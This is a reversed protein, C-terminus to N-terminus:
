RAGALITKQVRRAVPTPRTPTFGYGGFKRRAVGTSTLFDIDVAAASAIEPAFEAWVDRRTLQNDIVAHDDMSPYDTDDEPVNKIREQQLWNRVDRWLWVGGGVLHVPRPFDKQRDGRVWLDVAQRTKAAREAIDARSVFDPYTRKAVLDCASLQAL